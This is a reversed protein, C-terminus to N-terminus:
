GCRVALCCRCSTLTAHWRIATKFRSGQVKLKNHGVDCREAVLGVPDFDLFQLFIMEVADDNVSYLSDDISPLEGGM